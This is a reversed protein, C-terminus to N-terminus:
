SISPKSILAEIKQKSAGAREDYRGPLTSHPTLPPEERFRTAAAQLFFPESM